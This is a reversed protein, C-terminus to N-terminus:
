SELGLIAKELIEKKSAEGKGEVYHQAVDTMLQMFGLQDVLRYASFVGLKLLVEIIERQTPAKVQFLRICREIHPKAIHALELVCRLSDRTGINECTLLEQMKNMLITSACISHHRFLNMVGKLSVVEVLRCDMLLCLFSAEDLHDELLHM